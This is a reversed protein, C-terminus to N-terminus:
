AALGADRVGLQAPGFVWEFRLPNARCYDAIDDPSLTEPDAGFFLGGAAYSEGVLYSCIPRDKVLNLRRFFRVEHGAQKTLWWDAAHFLLKWWGYKDGVYSEAKVAIRTRVDSRVNPRYVAILPRNRGQSPGYFDWVPGKRTHWLAEVMLPGAGPGPPIVGADVVVGTHNYEAPDGPENEFWRIIRGLVGTKSRTLVVDGPLLIM